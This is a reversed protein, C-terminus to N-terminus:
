LGVALGLLQILFYIVISWYIVAKSRKAGFIMFICSILAVVLAIDSVTVLKSISWKLIGMEKINAIGGAVWAFFKGIGVFFDKTLILFDAIVDFASSATTPAVQVSALVTTGNIKVIM